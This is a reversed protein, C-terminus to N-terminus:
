DALGRLRDFGVSLAGLRLNLTGDTQNAATARGLVTFPASASGGSPTIGTVTVRYAGDPMQRDAVDRGNWSWTTASSGLRVIRDSLARGSSDTVVVRAAAAAGAAPLRLAASGNQLTLQDSEVEVMHGMLPAAATLQSSRELSLMNTLNQNMAILQEVSAFQVLQSTMQNADLPSTPDQNQLQTTLMSLFTNFDGAM